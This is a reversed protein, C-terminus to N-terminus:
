SEYWPGVTTGLPIGFPGGLFPFFAVPYGWALFQAPFLADDPRDAMEGRECEARIQKTERRM